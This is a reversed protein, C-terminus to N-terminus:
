ATDEGDGLSSTLKQGAEVEHLLTWAVAPFAESGRTAWTSGMDKSEGRSSSWEERTDDKHFSGLEGSVLQAPLGALPGLCFTQLGCPWLWRWPQRWQKSLEVTELILFLAVPFSHPKRLRM